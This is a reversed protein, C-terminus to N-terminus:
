SIMKLEDTVANKVFEVNPGFVIHIHNKMPFFIGSTGSDKLREKNVLNMDKLDIRLRTVCNDVNVINSSGGIAEIVIKAVEGYRKEKILNNYEYEDSERGPTAINYKEIAWKFIFYTAIALPVGVILINYWRTNEYMLGFIAFDFITGRIYGVGTGMLYLAVAGVGALLVYVVYLLPAIFLFSFEMPETINGLFPTIVMTIIIGKVFPRNKAYASKYMALGIAPIIFLTVLMQNQAMFKTLEPLMEWAESNPGQNFLVENLTPLIGTFTEGDIVYTGGAPTFRILASWVHHLGLPILLRVMLANVFPGVAGVLIVKSLAILGKTLYAWFFPIILGAITAWVISVMPVFKKGSFFAFAVPLEKNYYKDAAFAGILGAIIGGLVDLRLTQIGLVMGQGVQAMTESDALTGTAKLYVNITINLILYAIISSFVSIGKEKRSMGYAVGMAFLVPINSFIIDAISRLSTLILQLTENALFPVREVMYGQVLAGTLGLIMGMPAMIAIPLLLSRGFRQIGESFRERKTM